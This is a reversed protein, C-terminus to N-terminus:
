LDHARRIHELLGSCSREVMDHVEEFGRAGGFYPDPVDQEGGAGDDFARLLHLEAGAERTRAALRRVKELNSGDMVVVYDFRELDAAEIQRAVHDLRLGRRAAVEVTRTDPSDGAHYSSTGASDIDFRHSLGEEGVQQRFVGEALPSRCINGLCVFLVGVKDKM